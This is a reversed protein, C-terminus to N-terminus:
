VQFWELQLGECETETGVGKKRKPGEVDEVEEGGRRTDDRGMKTVHAKDCNRQNGM